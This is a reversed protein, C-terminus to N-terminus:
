AQFFYVEVDDTLASAVDDQDFAATDGCKGNRVVLFDGASGQPAQNPGSVHDHIVEIGRGIANDLRDRLMKYLSKCFGERVLVSGGPRLRLSAAGDM